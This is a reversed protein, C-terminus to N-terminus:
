ARKLEFAITGDDKFVAAKHIMVNSILGTKLAKIIMEARTSVHLKQYINALHTKFTGNSICLSAQVAHADDNHEWLAQLVQRERTTLNM